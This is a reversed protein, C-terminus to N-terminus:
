EEDFLITSLYREGTDPLITVVKKGAGLRKAIEKAAAYNGGSSMGVLIGEKKGLERSAAYATEQDMSLVEDVVQENYIEPVFNAGIGQIGHPGAAGGTLVPSKDPQVAFIQIAPNKEKLVSGIGSVTGGTGVGAVFADIEGNLDDYIEVATTEIHAQINARNKFQNILFYGKEKGLENAKEVSGAMGQSGPTLVLEAGYASIMKRREISMTDPMVIVMKYGLAAGIMSLSIGMNGSTAEVITDGTQILGQEQAAKIMYYAARDKVSGGPNFSEVKVYIDAMNSETKNVKVLPTNGITEIINNYLMFM